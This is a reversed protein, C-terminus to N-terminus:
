NAKETIKLPHTSESFDFKKIIIYELSNFYNM